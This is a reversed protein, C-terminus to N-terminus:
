EMASGEIQSQHHKIDSIYARMDSKDVVSSQNKKIVSLADGKVVALQLGLDLGLHLAGGTADTIVLRSGFCKLHNDFAVNINIKFNLGKSSEIAGGNEWELNRLGMVCWLRTGWLEDMWVSWDTFLTVTSCHQIVPVRINNQTSLLREVVHLRI